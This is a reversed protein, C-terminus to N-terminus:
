REEQEIRDNLEFGTVTRQSGDEVGVFTLRGEPHEQAIFAQGSREIVGIATPPSGLGLEEARLASVDGLEVRHVRRVSRDDDRFMLFAYRGDISFAVGGALAPALELKAYGTSTDFLTYGHSKDVYAEVNDTPSPTGAVKNHLIMAMEGTPDFAVGAVGKRLRFSQLDPRVGAQQPLELVSIREVDAATTFLVVRSSDPSVVAAGLVEEVLIVEVQGPRDNAEDDDWEEATWSQEVLGEPIEIVAIKREGRLVAVARRGDPTLELDTAVGRLEIARVPHDADNLDVASLGVEGQVRVLAWDGSSSIQVERTEESGVYPLMVHDVAEAETLRRLDLITIGDDSIVFARNGEDDFLVERPNFGVSLFRTRPTDLADLDSLDLAVADQFSGLDLPAGPRELARDHFAIAHAGDPAVALSNFGPGIPWDASRDAEADILTVDESEENLVLAVDREPLTVLGTPGQGVERTRIELTEADIQVVAARAASLVFVYRDGQVPVASYEGESEDGWDIPDDGGEPEPLKECVSRTRDCAYGTPCDLDSFCTLDGWGTDTDADTDADTDMDADTDADIDLDADTDLDVDADGAATGEDMGGCAPWLVPMLCLACGLMRTMLGKM